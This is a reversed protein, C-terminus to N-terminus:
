VQSILLVWWLLAGSVHGYQAKFKEVGGSKNSELVVKNSTYIIYIIYLLSCFNMEHKIEQNNIM